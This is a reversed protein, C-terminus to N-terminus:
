SQDEHGARHSWAHTRPFERGFIDVPGFRMASIHFRSTPRPRFAALSKSALPVFVAGRKGLQGSINWSLKAPLANIEPRAVL